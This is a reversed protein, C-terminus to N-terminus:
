FRAALALNNRERQLWPRYHPVRTEVRTSDDGDAGVSQRNEEGREANFRCLGEMQQAQFTRWNTGLNSHHKSSVHYIEHIDQPSHKKTNLSGDRLAEDVASIDYEDWRYVVKSLAVLAEGYRQHTDRLLLRLAVEGTPWNDAFVCECTANRQLTLESAAHAYRHSLALVLLNAKGAM